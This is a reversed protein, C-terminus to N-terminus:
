RRRWRALLNKWRKAIKEKPSPHWSHACYHIAYSRPTVEHKNGAFIESPYIHIGDRLSQDVDKYIFGYQEAMRAYIQPSLVDTALEGDEKLFSKDAYWDLVDKVFRSGKEAGMVAAQIQIGSVFGDKIRHGDADIMEMAGKREIEAPHYEMSSFFTHGLFEDFRKLIRVDSDLYIGGDHYLAYMRIYDAAFAWKRENIAERVYAPASEVDFNDKSWLKIEYDPMVEHWTEICRQIKSPYPDGSLWCYHIVKPIMTKTTHQSFEWRM